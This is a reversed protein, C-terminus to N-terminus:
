FGFTGSNDPGHARVSVVAHKPQTVQADADHTTAVQVGAPSEVEADQGPLVAISIMGNDLQNGIEIV